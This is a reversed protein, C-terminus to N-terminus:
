EALIDIASKRINEKATEVFGDNRTRACQPLADGDARDAATGEV